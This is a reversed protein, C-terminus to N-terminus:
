TSRAAPDLEQQLQVIALRQQRALPLPPEQLPVPQTAQGPGASASNTPWNMAWLRISSPPNTISSRSSVRASM